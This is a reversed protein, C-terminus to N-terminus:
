VYVRARADMIDRTEKPLAGFGGIVDNNDGLKMRKYWTSVALMLARNVDAPTTDYGWEGTVTLQEDYASPLIVGRVREHRLDYMLTYDDSDITNASSDAISTVSACEDLFMLTDDRLTVYRAETVKPVTPLDYLTTLADVAQEILFAVDDDDTSDSIGLLEKVECLTTLWYEQGPKVVILSEVDTFDAGGYTGTWTATWRTGYASSTVETSAIEQYNVTGSTTVSAALTVASGNANTLALAITTPAVASGTANYLTYSLLWDNGYPIRSAM